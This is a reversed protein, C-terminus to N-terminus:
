SRGALQRGQELAAFSRVPAPMLWRFGQDIVRGVNGTGVHPHGCAVGQERCIGLIEDIAAVVLPHEYQRPVGLEQSLDGEGIIVLGIGPVERLIERLNRVGAVDECMMGVLIEGDPDLPWVDAKAYYEQQTVGWYRAAAAPADGRQGAPEYRPAERPRPYRCAAVANRAEAVSSIHPWIVGYVGADLVQKAIWQNMEGGNPPIRVMPTVSPAVSGSGAIQRRDLMYQLADRLEGIDYGGHEMEFVVADYASGALGQATGRDAGCFTAFAAKGSALAGIAGNLRTM